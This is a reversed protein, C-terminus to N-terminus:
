DMLMGGNVGIVEGLIYDAQPSALLLVKGM